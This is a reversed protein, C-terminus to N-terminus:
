QGAAFCYVALRRQWVKNNESSNASRCSEKLRRGRGVLFAAPEKPADPLHEPWEAEPIIAAACCGNECDVWLNVDQMYEDGRVGSRTGFLGSTHRRAAYRDALRM